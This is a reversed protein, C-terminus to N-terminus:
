RLAVVLQAMWAKYITLIPVAPPTVCTVIPMAQRKYVDLHTYSVAMCVPDQSHGGVIMALSRAPLARAMEVDGPANSGHEGNDYHGM